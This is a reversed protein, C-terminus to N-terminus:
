NSLLKKTFVKLTQEFLTVADLSPAKTVDSSIRKKLEICPIQSQVLKPRDLTRPHGQHIM